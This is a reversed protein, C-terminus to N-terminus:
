GPDGAVPTLRFVRLDRHSREVYRDYSPWFATLRPWVEAKEEDTLLSAVVARTSGRFTVSAQPHQLLNTTWGPHNPRGFNSGVVLYSDGDPLTALPVTRPEGSKHGTTTLVLAPLVMQSVLVRGGTVRYVFRDLPPFIRPAVALFASSGAIASV